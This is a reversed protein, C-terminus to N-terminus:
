CYLSKRRGCAPTDVEVDCEGGKLGKDRARSFQKIEREVGSERAPRANEEDAGDRGYATRAGEDGIWGAHVGENALLSGRTWAQGPSM